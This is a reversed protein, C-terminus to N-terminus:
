YAPKNGGITQRKAKFAKWVAVVAGVVLVAKLVVTEKRDGGDLLRAPLMSDISEVLGEPLSTLFGFVADLEFPRVDSRLAAMSAQVSAKAATLKEQNEDEYLGKMDVLDTELVQLKSALEERAQLLVSDANESSLQGLVQQLMILFAICTDLDSQMANVTSAAIADVVPLAKSAAADDVVPPASMTSPFTPSCPAALRFSPFYSRTSCLPPVFRM